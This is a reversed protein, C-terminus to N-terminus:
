YGWAGYGRRLRDRQEKTLVADMEKRANRGNDFMQRRLESLQKFSKNVAADDRKGSAYFERLKLREDQMKEMLEWQKNATDDQIKAIKDRQEDSLDLANAGYGWMMGPGMGYGQGYGWMMGPGMGYGPRYGGMMGPGMGYGPGYGFGGMMGPGM